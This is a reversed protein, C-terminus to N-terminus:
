LMSYYLRVGIGIISSVFVYRIAVKENYGDKIAVTVMCGMLFDPIRYVFALHKWDMWDYEAILIGAIFCVIGLGLALWYRRHKVLLHFIAPFAVYLGM